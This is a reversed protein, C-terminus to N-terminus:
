ASGFRQVLTRVGVLSDSNTGLVVRTASSTSVIREEVLKEVILIEHAGINRRNCLRQATTHPPCPPALRSREELLAGTSRM